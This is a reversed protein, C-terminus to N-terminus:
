YNYQRQYVASFSPSVRRGAPTYIHLAGDHCGVASFRSNGAAATVRGEVVNEWETKGGARM